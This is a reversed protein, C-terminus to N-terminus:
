ELASVREALGAVEVDPHRCGLAPQPQRIPYETSDVLAQRQHSRGDLAFPRHLPERVMGDAQSRQGFAMEPESLGAIGLGRLREVQCALLTLSAVLRVREPDEPGDRRAGRCARGALGLIRKALSDREGVLELHTRDGSEAM